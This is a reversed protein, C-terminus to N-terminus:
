NKWLFCKDRFCCSVVTGDSLLHMFEDGAHCKNTYGLQVGLCNDLTVPIREKLKGISAAIAKLIVDDYAGTPKMSLLNLQDTKAIIPEIYSPEANNFHSFLHQLGNNTLLYNCSVKLNHKRLIEAKQAWETPTAKFEDYSLGVSEVRNSKIFGAFVDSVISPMTTMTVHTKAPIFFMDRIKRINYGSYEICVTVDEPKAKSKEIIGEIAWKWSNFYGTKTKLKQIDDVYCFPCKPSM